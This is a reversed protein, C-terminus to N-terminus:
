DVPTKDPVAAGFEDEGMRVVKSFGLIGIDHLFIMAELITSFRNGQIRWNAELDGPEIVFDGIEDYGYHQMIEWRLAEDPNLPIEEGWEGLEDEDWEPDYGIYNDDDSM